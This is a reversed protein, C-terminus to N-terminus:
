PFQALLADEAMFNDWLPDVEPLSPHFIDAIIAHNPSPADYCCSGPNTNLGAEKRLATVWRPDDAYTQDFPDNSGYAIQRAKDQVMEDTVHIGASAQERIYAIIDRRLDIYRSLANPVDMISPLVEDGGIGLADTTRWPDMTHREHGVLYPPMANEVLKKVDPDFGWCGKWQKMDAGKKFHEALHDVREQWTCFRADCFGCRSVVRTVSDRWQEMLPHYGVNHALRLHQRLHDKRSFRRQEPSKDRCEPYHHKELHSDDPDSAQCFVCVSLGNVEVLGGQPACTWRDVPLHLAKEHRQWDYKAMFTDSCFTCQYPRRGNAKRKNWAETPHPPKRRRRRSRMGPIPTPPRRPVRFPQNYSADSGSSQSHEYSSISLPGVVFSSGSSNSSCADHVAHQTAGCDSSDPVDELARLIDSTAAPESEPPSNRWRELPSLLSNDPQNAERLPESGVMRRRRVNTFWNSIQTVDLGTQQKLQEKEQGTPYPYDQHQDLWSQLIKVAGASLRRNNKKTRKKTSSVINASLSPESQFSNGSSNIHSPCTSLGEPSNGESVEAHNFTSWCHCSGPSHDLYTNPNGYPGLLQPLLNPQINASQPASSHHPENISDYSSFQGPHGVIEDLLPGYNTNTFAPSDADLSPLLLVDECIKSHNRPAHEM